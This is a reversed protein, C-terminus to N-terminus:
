ETASPGDRATLSFPLEPASRTRVPGTESRAVQIRVGDVLTKHQMQLCHDVRGDVTRRAVCAHRPDGETEITTIQGSPFQLRAEAFLPSGLVYSPQGPCLPFLGLASLVYWASMEGNDEDGPLGAPSPDYLEDLVRRFSYFWSM